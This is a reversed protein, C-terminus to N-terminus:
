LGKSELFRVVRDGLRPEGHDAYRYTVRLAPKNVSLLRVLNMPTGVLVADCEAANISDELDKRQAEGYGMAPLIRGIDPYKEFTEKLSGRLYPRPDVIEAAGYKKAAVEAAGFKMEGHTTTPGDEVCLVRRGKVADPDDVSVPSAAHVIEAGPNLDSLSAELTEVADAEATDVKNIVLVDALRANLEGPYYSREHGARHPDAVVIHFASRFFPLDNNGGDWLIVDAEKEAERLIMEYDVGAFIVFGSEVYLEYEEREEITCDAAEFDAYAAFRQVRQDLLKGYPMPHRVAAVRMGRESLIKTIMRSTQSKGCGTRVACVSLIPRKSEICTRLLDPLVFAAGAANVRSSLGMVREYPVDSYSFVAEEVGRERILRALDRDEDYIRIGEPYLRGALEPPYIRGVIYPIQAATFGVVEVDENDRYLTNFNHFDRGAAGLILVKKRRM